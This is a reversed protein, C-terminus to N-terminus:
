MWGGGWREGDVGEMRGDELYRDLGLVARADRETATPTSARMVSSSTSATPIKKHNVHGTPHKLAIILISPSIPLEVIFHEFLYINPHKRFYHYGLDDMKNPKKGNIFWRNQTGGIKPFVWNTVLNSDYLCLYLEHKM